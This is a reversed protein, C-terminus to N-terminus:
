TGTRNARKDWMFSIAPTTFQVAKTGAVSPPFIIGTLASGAATTGASPDCDIGINCGGSQVGNPIGILASGNAAVYNTATGANRVNYKYTVTSDTKVVTTVAATGSGTTTSKSNTTPTPYAPSLPVNICTTASYPGVNAWTIAAPVATNTTVTTTTASGGAPTVTTAVVVQTDVYARIDLTASTANIARLGILSGPDCTEDIITMRMATASGAAARANGWLMATYRHQDEVTITSDSLITSAVAPLTDDLFVRFHRTGAFTAKYQILFSSPPVGGASVISNRFPIQFQANNEVEDIFRFDIGNSGATDPVANVFRVGGTPKFGNDTVDKRDSCASLVVVAFCATSLQIIRRM